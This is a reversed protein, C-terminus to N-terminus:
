GNCVGLFCKQEGIQDCFAVASKFHARRDEVGDMLKIIGNLGITRYIYSSFPGPFGKLAEIFLGADEVILPLNVERVANLASTKAINEIDDDQIELTKIKLMAVSIGYEALIEKAENFKHINGTVFFILRGYPFGRPQM